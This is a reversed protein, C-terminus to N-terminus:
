NGRKFSDFGLAETKQALELAEGPDEVATRKRGSFVDPRNDGLIIIGFQM